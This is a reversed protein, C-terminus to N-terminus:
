VVRPTILLSGVSLAHMLALCVNGKTPGGGSTALLILKLVRAVEKSRLIKGKIRSLDKLFFTPQVKVLTGKWVKAEELVVVKSGKTPFAVVIM